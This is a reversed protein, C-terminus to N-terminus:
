RVGSFLGVRVPIFLSPETVFLQTSEPEDIKPLQCDQRVLSQALLGLLTGRRAPDDEGTLAARIAEASETLDGALGQRYGSLLQALYSVPAEPSHAPRILELSLTVAPTRRPAKRRQPIEAVVLVAESPEVGLLTFL